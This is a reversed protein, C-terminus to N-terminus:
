NMEKLHTLVHEFTILVLNLNFNLSLYHIAVNMRWLYLKKRNIKTVAKLIKVEFLLLCHSDFTCGSDWSRLLTPEPVKHQGLGTGMPLWKKARGQLLVYKWAGHCILCSKEQKSEVCTKFKFASFPLESNGQWILRPDFSDYFWSASLPKQVWDHGEATCTWLGRYHQQGTAGLRQSWVMHSARRSQRMVLLGYCGACTELAKVSQCQDRVWFNDLEPDFGSREEWHGEGLQFCFCSLCLGKRGPDGGKEDSSCSPWVVCVFCLQPLQSSVTRGGAKMM